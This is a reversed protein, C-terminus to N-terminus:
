IANSQTTIYHLLDEMISLLVRVQFAQNTVYIDLLDHGLWGLINLLENGPTIVV